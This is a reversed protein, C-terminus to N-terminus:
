IHITRYKKEKQLGVWCSHISNRWELPVTQQRWSCALAFGGNAGNSGESKFSQRHIRHICYHSGDAPVFRTGMSRMSPAKKESPM